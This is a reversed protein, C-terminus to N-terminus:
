VSAIPVITDNHPEHTHLTIELVSLVAIELLKIDEWIVNVLICNAQVEKEMDVRFLIMALYM